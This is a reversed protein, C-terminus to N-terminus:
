ASGLQRGLQKAAQVSAPNDGHLCVSDAKVPVAEGGLAIVQMRHQLEDVQALIVDVSGHVANSDTRATLQGNVQYLRDAFAEFCLPVGAQEAASRMALTTATASVMWILPLDYDMLWALVRQFLDVDRSVDNYLAGHLKLYSLPAAARECVLRLRNVQETLTERLAHDSMAMSRRGFHDRDPYSPHAGITVSYALCAQVSRTMTASDGAHGGCAISAQDLHPYLALDTDLGEGLDANLLLPRDTKKTVRTM